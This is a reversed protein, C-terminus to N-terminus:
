LGGGMGTEVRLVRPPLSQSTLQVGTGGEYIIVIRFDIDVKLWKHTPFLISNIKKFYFTYM